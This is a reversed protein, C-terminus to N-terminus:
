PAALYRPEEDEKHLGDYISQGISSSYPNNKAKWSKNQVQWLVAKQEQTLADGFIGDIAAATEKQTFSGNGDADYEGKGEKFDIYNGSTIGYDGGVSLYRAYADLADADKLDLYEDLTVGADLMDLMKAYQSKGGSETTMDTGMISGIAAIKDADPIEAAAIARYRQMDSVNEQGAEPVLAALQNTLDYAKDSDLGADTLKEYRKAEAPIQQWYLLQEKVEAAQEETYGSGDVWRAFATAQQTKALDEHSKIEEYADIADMADSFTLGTQMIALASDAKSEAGTLERFMILKKADSLDLSRFLERKQMGKELSEVENDGAIKRYALIADYIDSSDEGSQVMDTWLRTQNESLPNEGKAYYRDSPTTAYKGFALAKTINGFTPEIPYKLKRDDGYGSFDGGRILAEAGLGLKKAQKGGPLLEAALSGVAKVTEGSAIGHSDIAKGVDTVGGYIDPLPLTNDGLGLVGSLNRVFPVDNSINYATDDVAQKWNFPKEEDDDDDDFLAEGFLAAWGKNLFRLLYDNTPLEEGSAIFNAALGLIDFPAPTGGYVGEAIRNLIFTSILTKSLVGALDRAAKVTGETRATERFERPLDQSIHEWSNLAEVQFVNVMQSIINKETFATPISGKARSGMISKGFQDASKMAEAPSKGADIEQLYKGRVAVTSVMEDVFGAGWFMGSLVKEGPTQVLYNIGEKETLFDSSEVWSGKRAQGGVIDRIAAATYKAGLEARIQPLQATQNLMSSVNAAVQTRAFARQLKNGLNLLTRGKIESGRDAMNQKGALLNAYNDLWMVLDSYKTTKEINRFMEDVYEDMRDSVDKYNLESDGTLVGQERLFEAKQEASGYKLESAWDLTSKIEDPAYTKRFYNAAQRVRMIDDTHYLIDSMYDVYSEYASVIDYATTDSTRHLFFPNWRKNPKYYGTQGAISTPLNSVDTNIGMAKFAKNLLNQNEESQIHPAYGKIFGIPEYGHAVLFDNIADYFDDFMEGYKKVANEIKVNDVNGSGLASETELWRAYRQALAREDASLSFERSVDSIDEGSRLNKAASEIASRMELGAVEEAAAKGEIVQQVLASEEKTLASAKGDKGQFTRVEDFMRNIFRIREAENEAVPDFIAENIAKARTEGFIANMIRQPTRYSMVLGSVPKFRDSDRFLHSMQGELERNITRRVGKIRDDGTAQEARYYDALETVKARDMSAPIDAETYLGDMIGRAFTREAKTADLRSEAKRREGAIQKAAKDSGKLQELNQYLGVSNAIKVGLKQLARTGTFDAKGTTRALNDPVTVPEVRSRMREIAEAVEPSVQTGDELQMGENAIRGRRESEAMDAENVADAMSQVRWAETENEIQEATPLPRYDSLFEDFSGGLSYKTDDMGPAALPRVDFEPKVNQQNTTHNEGSAASGGYSPTRGLPDERYGYGRSFAAEADSVASVGYSPTRSQLNDQSAYGRSFATETQMNMGYIQARVDRDISRVSFIFPMTDEGNQVPVVFSDWVNAQVRGGENSHVDHESSFAYASKQVLENFKQMAAAKEATPRGVFHDRAAGTVYAELVGDGVNFYVSDGMVESVIGRLYKRAERVNDWNAKQLQAGIEDVSLQVINGAAMSQAMAQQIGDDRQQTDNYDIYSRQLNTDGMTYQAVGGNTNTTDGVSRLAREYMREANRIFREEGTGKLKVALDSLWDRITQVLSRNERALRNIAQENRFLNEQAYQAVIERRAAESDLTIGRAAYRAQFAAELESVGVDSERAIHDLIMKSFQGYRGSTEMHHTLEHVMVTMVPSSANPSITITGNRYKGDAGNEVEAVEMTAGFIRAIQEARRFEAQREANTTGYAPLSNAEAQVPESPKAGLAEVAARANQEAVSGSQAAKPKVQEAPASGEAARTMPAANKQAEAGANAAPTLNGAPTEESRAESVRQATAPTEASQRGPRAVTDVTGGVAGMIGGVLMDYLIDSAELESYIQGLGKGNYITRLAPNVIGSAFEEISEGAASAAVTLARRAAENKTLRTIAKEVIEDAGGKGYVGALGDFMKETLVEVAASGAGYALQRATSAGSQRAEQAGGGFSRIAMPILNNGGTFVGGVADMGMQAANIGVDVALKGLGSKADKAQSTYAGAQDGMSDSLEQLKKATKKAGVADLVTGVANVDGSAVGYAAANLSRDVTAGLGLKEGTEVGANRLAAIQRRLEEGRDAFDAAEDSRGSHIARMAKSRLERYESELAKLTEANKAAANKAKVANDLAAKAYASSSQLGPAPLYKPEDDQANLAASQSKAMAAYDVNSPKTSQTTTQYTTKGSKSTASTKSVTEPVSLKEGGTVGGSYGAQRRIAEAGEHAMRAAEQNGERVAREYQATYTLVAQQQLGNLHKKDYESLAM